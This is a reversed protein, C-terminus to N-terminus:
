HEDHRAPSFKKFKHLHDTFKHLDAMQNVTIYLRFTQILYIDNDLPLLFCGVRADDRIAQNFSFLTANSLILLSTLVFLCGQKFEGEVM